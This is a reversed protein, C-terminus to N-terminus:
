VEKYYMASHCMCALGGQLVHCPPVYHLLSIYLIRASKENNATSEIFTPVIVSDAPQHPVTRKITHLYTCNYVSSFVNSRSLPPTLFSLANCTQSCCWISEIFACQVATCHAKHTFSPITCLNSNIIRIFQLGLSHHDTTISQYICHYLSINRLPGVYTRLFTLGLFPEVDM